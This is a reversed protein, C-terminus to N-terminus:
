SVVLAARQTIVLHSPVPSLSLESPFARGIVRHSLSLSVARAPSDPRVTIFIVSAM